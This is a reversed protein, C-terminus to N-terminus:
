ECVMDTIIEKFVYGVISVQSCLMEFNRYAWFWWCQGVIVLNGLGLGLGLGQGNRNGEYKIAM